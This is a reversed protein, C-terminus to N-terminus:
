EEENGSDDRVFDDGAVAYAGSGAAGSLTDTTFLVADAWLVDYPTVHGPRTLQVGEINRFSKLAVADGAGLVVLTKRPSGIADLLQIASKTKPESWDITEVVKVASESARASLASYLALRKM